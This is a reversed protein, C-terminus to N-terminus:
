GRDQSDRFFKDLLTPKIIKYGIYGGMAGGVTYAAILLPSFIIIDRPMREIATLTGSVLGGLAGASMGMALLHKRWSRRSIQFSDKIESWM